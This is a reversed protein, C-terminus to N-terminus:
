HEDSDHHAQGHSLSYVYAALVHVKGEGLVDKWAPMHSQRGNRITEEIAETSSGHLWITDTLNASGIAQNGKGSATHCAACITQFTQEGYHARAEDHSRGSLSLVYQAVNRVGEEGLQQGFAPMTGNRGYLITTKITQPEGGYLWDNDRLNPYHLGGQADSGHCQACNNLFLREGMEHAKPDAALVRLDTKLYRDFIPGYQRAAAAQEDVYQQHSTWGLLGKFTGLGPFLLLYTLATAITIYFLYMWWRPLPNDYEGLDEDWIHGTTEVADKGTKKSRMSRVLLAMALLGGLVIVSIYYSWFSSTFDSM